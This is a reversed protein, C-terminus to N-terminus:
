SRPRRRAILTSLGVIGLLAASPVPVTVFTREMADLTASGGGLAFFWGDQHLDLSSYGGGEYDYPNEVYRPDFGDTAHLSVSRYVLPDEGGNFVADNLHIYSGNRQARGEMAVNDGIIRNGNMGEASFLLSFDSPTDDGVVTDRWLHELRFGQGGAGRDVISVMVEDPNFNSSYFANFVIMTNGATLPTRNAILTSLPVPDAAAAAAAALAAANAALLSAIRRRTGADM